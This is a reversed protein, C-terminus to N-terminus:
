FGLLQDVILQSPGEEDLVCAEPDGELEAGSFSGERYDLLGDQGYCESLTGLLDTDLDACDPSCAVGDSRGAGEPAWRTRLALLEQAEDGGVDGFTALELSSLSEGLQAVVVQHASAQERNQEVIETLSTSPRVEFTVVISAELEPDLEGMLDNSPRPPVMTPGAGTFVMQSEPGGMEWRGQTGGGELPQVWGLNLLTLEEDEFRALSWGAGGGEFEQMRLEVVGNRLDTSWRDQDSDWFREPEATFETLLDLVRSTRADVEAGRQASLNYLRSPGDLSRLGEPSEPMALLLEAGPLLTPLLALDPACALLTILLM